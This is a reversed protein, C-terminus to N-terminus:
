ILQRLVRERRTAGGSCRVFKLCVFWVVMSILTSAACALRVWPLKLIAIKRIRHCRAVGAVVAERRSLGNRRHFISM